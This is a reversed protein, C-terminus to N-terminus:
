PIFTLTVTDQNVQVTSLTTWYVKLKKKSTKDCSKKPFPKKYIKIYQDKSFLMDPFINTGLNFWFPEKSNLKKKAVQSNQITKQEITYYWPTFRCIITGGITRNIPKITM